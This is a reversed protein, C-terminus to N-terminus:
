SSDKILALLTVMHNTFFLGLNQFFTALVTALGFFALIDEDLSLALLTVLHNIFFLSLNPSFTALVTALGFFAFIGEDIHFYL